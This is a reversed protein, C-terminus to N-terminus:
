LTPTDPTPTPAIGYRVAFRGAFDQIIVSHDFALEPLADLPFFLAEEADDGGRLADPDACRAAFVTSITHLRADRSPDSYVGVLDDLQVELGTEEKAERKAAHEVTEGYDVFGGPLAWGFPPFRRKVLVIGRGPHSIIVDVTPVPNRMSLPADRQPGTAPPPM